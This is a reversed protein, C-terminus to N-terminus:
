QAWPGRLGPKQRSRTGRISRWATRRWLHPVIRWALAGDLPAIPLLNMAAFWANVYGFLALVANIGNARTFGFVTLWAVIPLAVLLQALVGGWAIVYTDYARSPAVYWTRGHMPYLEISLVSEGGVV